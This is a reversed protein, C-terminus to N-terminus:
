TKVSALSNKEVRLKIGGDVDLLVSSEDVQHVKGHIGGATVVKDGRKVAEIMAKRKKERKQQPRIIFLYFVLFILLLPLFM